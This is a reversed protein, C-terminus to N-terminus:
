EESADYFKAVRAMAHERDNRFDIKNKSIYKKLEKKRDKFVKLVSSKTKVTFFQGNKYIFLKNIAPYEVRVERLDTKQNIHKRHKELVKVKGNYLLDYFGSHISSDSKNEGLRIFTHGSLSFSKVKESILELKFYSYPQELIVKDTILDYMLAVNNYQGGDYEISGDAWDNSLFYAHGQDSSHEVYGKYEVGNYLNAQDGISKSYVDFANKNAQAIFSSDPTLGQGYM